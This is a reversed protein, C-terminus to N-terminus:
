CRVAWMEGYAMGLAVSGVSWVAFAVGVCGVRLGVSSVAKHM